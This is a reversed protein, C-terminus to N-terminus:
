GKRVRDRKAEVLRAGIVGQDRDCEPDLGFADAGQEFHGAGLDLPDGSGGGTM